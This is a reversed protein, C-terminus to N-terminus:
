DDSKRSVAGAIDRLQSAIDESVSAASVQAAEARAVDSRHQLTAAFVGRCSPCRVDVLRVASGCDPDSCVLSQRGKGVVFGIGGAVLAASIAISANSMALGTVGAVVAGGIAMPLKQDGVRVRFVPVGVNFAQIDPLRLRSLLTLRDQSLRQVTSAVVTRKHHDLYGWLRDLDTKALGQAALQLGLLFSFDDRDLYCTRDHWFGPTTDKPPPIYRTSTHTILVGFGLFVATVDTLTEELVDDAVEIRHHRRYAHSVEHALTGALVDPGTLQGPDVGFVCRCGDEIGEFWAAAGSTMGPAGDAGMTEIHVHSHEIRVMVTYQRLGAYAMLRKILREVGAPTPTWRDPFDTDNPERLPALFPRSGQKNLLTGLHGELIDQRQKTPLM